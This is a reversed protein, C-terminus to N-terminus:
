NLQLWPIKPEAGIERCGHPRPTTISRTHDYLIILSSAINTQLQRTWQFSSLDFIVCPPNKLIVVRPDQVNIVGHGFKKLRSSKKGRRISVSSKSLYLLHEKALVATFDSKTIEGWSHNKWFNIISWTMKHKHETRRSWSSHSKSLYSWGVHLYKKMQILIVFLIIWKSKLTPTLVSFCIWKVNVQSM